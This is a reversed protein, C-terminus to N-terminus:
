PQRLIGERRAAWTADLTLPPGGAQAVSVTCGVLALRPSSAERSVSCALRWAFGARTGSYPGSAWTSRADSLVSLAVTTAEATNRAAALDSRADRLTALFALMAAALISAGILVEMLAM